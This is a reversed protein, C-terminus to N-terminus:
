TASFAPSFGVGVYLSYRTMLSSRAFQSSNLKM